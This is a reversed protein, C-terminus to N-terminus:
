KGEKRPSESTPEPAAETTKSWKTVAASIDDLSKGGLLFAGALFLAVINTVISTGADRMWGLFTKRENLQATITTVMTKALASQKVELGIEEVKQELGVILFQQALTQGRELYGQLAGPLLNMKRFTTLAAEDPPTRNDDFYQKTWEVKHQKYISYALAGIVEGGNDILTEYIHDSM